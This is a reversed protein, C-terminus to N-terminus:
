SQLNEFIKSPYASMLRTVIRSYVLNITSFERLIQGFWGFRSFRLKQSDTFKPWSQLLFLFPKWTCFWAFVIFELECFTDSNSSWLIDIKYNSILHEIAAWFSLCMSCAENSWGLVPENGCNKGVLIINDRTLTRIALEGSTMRIHGVIFNVFWTNLSDRLWLWHWIQIFRWRTFYPIFFEVCM